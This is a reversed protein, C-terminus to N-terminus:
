HNHELGPFHLGLMQMSTIVVTIFIVINVRAVLCQAWHKISM